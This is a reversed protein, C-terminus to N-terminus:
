GRSEPSRAWGPPVANDLLREVLIALIQNEELDRAEDNYVRAAAGDGCWWALWALVALLRARSSRPALRVALVLAQRARESREHDPAPAGPAHARELAEQAVSEHLEPDLGLVGAVVADPGDAVAAAFRGLGAASLHEGELVRDIASVRQAPTRTTVSRFARAFARRRGPDGDRGPALDARDAKPASGSMVFAAAVSTSELEALPVGDPPCCTPECPDACAFWTPGVLWIQEIPVLSARSLVQVLRYTWVTRAEQPTAEEVYAAVLVNRADDSRLHGALDDIVQDGYTGLVDELDVRAVMGLRGRHRRISIFVLSRRPRFGMAYPIYAVLERPDSVRLVPAASPRASRHSASITM